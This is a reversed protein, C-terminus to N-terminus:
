PKAIAVDRRFEAIWRLKPPNENDTFQEIEHTRLPGGAAALERRTLAWPMQAPDRVPDEENTARAIVLLTGGPAVPEHVAAIARARTEGYLPQLTYIEVVLDFAGSWEAPLRLLDATVYTVPSGPNARRAAAVATPAVDFATVAFGRRALLEADYGLGCGVVLASRGAGPGTDGLWKELHPNATGDAWPVTSVGAEAESYLKEFWGTGDGEAAATAALERARLRAKEDDTQV